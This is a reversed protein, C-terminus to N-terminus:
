ATFLVLRISDQPIREITFLKCYKIDVIEEQGLVVSVMAVLMIRSVHADELNVYEMTQANLSSELVSLATFHHCSPVLLEKLSWM